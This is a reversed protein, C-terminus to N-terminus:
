SQGSASWARAGIVAFAVWTRPDSAGKCGAAVVASPHVGASSEPTPYLLAAIRAYTAYPNTSVLAAVPVTPPPARELVVATARTAGLQSRYLPNALFAVAGAKANALSAM